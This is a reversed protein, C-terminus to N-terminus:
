NKRVIHGIVDDGEINNMRITIIPTHTLM